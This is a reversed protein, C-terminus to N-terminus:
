STTTTSTSTTTTTTVARIVVAQYGDEIDSTKIKDLAGAGGGILDTAALRETAM